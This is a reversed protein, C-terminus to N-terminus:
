YLQIHNRGVLFFDLNHKHVQIYKITQATLTADKIQLKSLSNDDETSDREDPNDGVIDNEEYDVSGRAYIHARNFLHLPDWRFMFNQNNLLEKLTEKFNKNGKIFAGDGTFGSVIKSLYKEKDIKGEMKLVDFCTQALDTGKKSVVPVINALRM